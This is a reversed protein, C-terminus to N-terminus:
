TIAKMLSQIMELIKWLSSNLLPIVVYSIFPKGEKKVINGESRVNIRKFSALHIINKRLLVM